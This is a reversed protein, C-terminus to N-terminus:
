PKAGAACVPALLQVKLDEVFYRGTKVNKITTFPSAVTVRGSKLEVDYIMRGGAAAQNSLIRYEDHRLHCLLILVRKEYEERSWIDRVAAQSTGWM